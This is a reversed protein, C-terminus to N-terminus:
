HTYLHTSSTTHSVMQLCVKTTQVLIEGIVLLVGDESVAVCDHEGACGFSLDVVVDDFPVFPKADASGSFIPWLKRNKM